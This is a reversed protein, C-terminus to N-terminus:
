EDNAEYTALANEANKVAAKVADPIALADGEVAKILEKLAHALADKDDERSEVLSTLRDIEGVQYEFSSLEDVRDIFQAPMGGKIASERLWSLFETPTVSSHFQM